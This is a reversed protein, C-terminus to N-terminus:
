IILKVNHIHKSRIYNDKLKVFPKQYNEKCSYNKCTKVQTFPQFMQNKIITHNPDSTANWM